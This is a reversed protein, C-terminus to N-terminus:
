AYVLFLGTDFSFSLLREAPLTVPVRRKRLQDREMDRIREHM